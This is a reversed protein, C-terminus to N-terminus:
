FATQPYQRPPSVHSHLNYTSAPPARTPPLPCPLSTERTPRRAQPELRSSPAAVCVFALVLSPSDAILFQQTQCAGFAWPLGLAPPDSSPPRSPSIYLSWFLLLHEAGVPAGPARSMESTKRWLGRGQGQAVGVAQQVQLDIRHSHHSSAWRRSSRRSLARGSRRTTVCAPTSTPWPTRRRDCGVARSARHPRLAEIGHRLFTGARQV